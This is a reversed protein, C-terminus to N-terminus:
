LRTCNPAPWSEAVLTARGFTQWYGVRLTLLLTAVAFAAFMVRLRRPSVNETVQGREEPGTLHESGLLV